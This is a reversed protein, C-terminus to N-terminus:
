KRPSQWRTNAGITAITSRQTSTLSKARAIGGKSAGLQAFETPHILSAAEQRKWWQAVEAAVEAETIQICSSIIPPPTPPKPLNLVLAQYFFQDIPKPSKTLPWDFQSFPLAGTPIYIVLNQNYDRYWYIPYPNKWDTQVFPFTESQLFESLNQLWTPDIPKNIVPLPFDVNQFFPTPQPLNTLGASYQNYSFPTPFFFSQFTQTFPLQTSVSLTTELLNQNWTLGLRQSAQPLDWIGAFPMQIALSQFLTSTLLDENLDIFWFNARINTQDLPVFPTPFPLQVNGAESWAQYWITRFPNPWDSQLSPKPNPQNVLQESFYVYSGGPPYARPNPWDFQNHPIPNFPLLTNGTEIWKYWDFYVYGRNPLPWDNQLSPKPNPLNVLQESYWQYYVDPRPVKNPNHFEKNNVSWSSLDATLAFLLGNVTSPTGVTCTATASSQTASVSLLSTRTGVSGSGAANTTTLINTFGTPIAPAVATGASSNGNLWCTLILDDPNSTSYTITSPSTTGTVTFPLGVNPDFASLLTIGACGQVGFCHMVANGPTVNLTAKITDSFTTASGLFWVDTFMLTTGSGTSFGGFRTFSLGGTVSAVSSVSAATRESYVVAIIVTNTVTTTLTPSTITTTANIASVGAAPNLSPSAM